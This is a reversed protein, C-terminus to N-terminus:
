QNRGNHECDLVPCHARCLGSRRPQWIDEQFAQVYQKLDPEIKTSWVRKWEDRSMRQTDTAQVQTWYFNMEVHSITPYANFAWIANLYLQTWKPNRKGTNHTVLRRETCLYTNDPSAVGICATERAEVSTVSVVRRCDSRGPGWGNVGAAKRPLLFPVFRQPRWCVRWARGTKGFGTYTYEVTTGREGLSNVLVQVDDILRRASNSFVAQHRFWNADGDGDMLGRLLDVRQTVSATLYVEPIHKNRMLGLRILHGRIGKVTRTPCSERGTDAGIEYGRRQVEDWIFQDPKSVEGSTHKGDALWLGLVYPDIPLSAEPMQAPQAVVMNHGKRLSTVPVVSGDVLLWLHVDDCVVASKDDFKIEFCDRVKTQSKVTVPYAVGDSGHVLDGVQVDRMTTFGHPTSILTDLPLGKWDCLTVQHPAITIHDIVGRYIADKGFFETPKFGPGFAIKMEQKKEGDLAELQKMLPEHMAIDKPLPVGDRQRLEFDKHVRNGWVLHPTNPDDKVTKLVYQAHYRRPCNVFTSLSSFSFTLPRM